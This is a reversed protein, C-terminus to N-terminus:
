QPKENARRMMKTHPWGTSQVQTGSGIITFRPGIIREGLVNLFAADTELPPFL